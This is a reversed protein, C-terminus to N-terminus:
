LPLGSCKDLCNGVHLRMRSYFLITHLFCRLSVRNLIWLLFWSFSDSELMTVYISTRPKPGLSTLMSHSNIRWLHLWLLTAFFWMPHGSSVGFFMTNWMMSETYPLKAMGGVKSNTNNWLRRQLTLLTSLSISM